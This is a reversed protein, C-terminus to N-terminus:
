RDRFQFMGNCKMSIQALITAYGSFEWVFTSYKLVILKFFCFMLGAIYINVTQNAKQTKSEEVKKRDWGARLLTKYAGKNESLM